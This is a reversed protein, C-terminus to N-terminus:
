AVQGNAAAAVLARARTGAAPGFRQPSLGSGECPVMSWGASDWRNHECMVARGPAVRRERGCGPCQHWRGVSSERCM